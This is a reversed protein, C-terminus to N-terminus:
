RFVYKLLFSMTWTVRYDLITLASLWRGRPRPNSNRQSRATAYCGHALQEKCGPGPSVWGEMREPDTFSYRSRSPLYLVSIQSAAQHAGHVQAGRRHCHRSPASYCTNSRKKVKETDTIAVHYQLWICDHVSSSLQLHSSWPMTDKAWRCVTTITDWRQLTIIPKQWRIRSQQQRQVNDDRSWMWSVTVDGIGRFRQACRHQRSPHQHQCLGNYKILNNNGGGYDKSTSQCAYLFVTQRKCSHVDWYIRWIKWGVGKIKVKLGDLLGAVFNHQPNVSTAFNRHESNRVMTGYCLQYESTYKVQTRVIYMRLANQRHLNPLYLSWCFRFDGNDVAGSFWRIVMIFRINGFVISDQAVNKGSAPLNVNLNWIQTTADSWFCLKLTHFAYSSNLTM